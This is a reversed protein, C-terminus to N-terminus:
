SAASRKAALGLPTMGQLTEVADEPELRKRAVFSFRSRLKLIPKGIWHWSFAAFMTILLLAVAFQVILPAHPLWVKVVQQM